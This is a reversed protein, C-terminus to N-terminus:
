SVLRFVGRAIKRVLRAGQQAAVRDRSPQRRARIAAGARWERVRASMYNVAYQVDKQLFVLIKGGKVKQKAYYKAHGVRRQLQGEDLRILVRGGRVVSIKYFGGIDLENQLDGYMHGKRMDLGDRAKRQAHEDGYDELAVGAAEEDDFDDAIREEVHQAIDGAWLRLRAVPLDDPLDSIVLTNRNQILARAM